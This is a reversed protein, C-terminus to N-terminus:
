AAEVCGFRTRQRSSVEIFWSETGPDQGLSEPEPAGPLPIFLIHSEREAKGEKSHSICKEKLSKPEEEM